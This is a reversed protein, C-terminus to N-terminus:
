CEKWLSRGNRKIETVMKRYNGSRLRFRANTIINSIELYNQGLYDVQYWGNASSNEIKILDNKLIDKLLPQVKCREGGISTEDFPYNPYWREIYKKLTNEDGGGVAKIRTSLSPLAKILEYFPLAYAVDEEFWFSNGYKIAEKMTYRTLYKAMGRSISVGGHRATSYFVVGPCVKVAGQSEGWPTMTGAVLSKAVKNLEKAIKQNNM